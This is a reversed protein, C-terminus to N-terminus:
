LRYESYILWGVLAAVCIGVAVGILLQKPASERQGDSAGPMVYVFDKKIKKSMNVIAIFSLDQQTGGARGHL